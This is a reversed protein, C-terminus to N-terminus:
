PAPVEHFLGIPVVLTTIQSGGSWTIQLLLLLPDSDASVSLANGPINVKFTPILSPGAATGQPSSGKPLFTFPTDDTPATTQLHGKADLWALVLKANELKQPTQNQILFQVTYTTNAQDGAVVAGPYTLWLVGNGIGSQQAQNTSGGPSPFRYNQQISVQGPKSLPFFLALGKGNADTILWPHSLYTPQTYSQGPQLVQYLVRQGTYSLWYVSRPESADNLFVISTATPATVGATAGILSSEVFGELTPPRPMLEPASTTSAFAPGAVGALLIWGVFIIELLGQRKDAGQFPPPVGWNRCSKVPSVEKLLRTLTRQSM